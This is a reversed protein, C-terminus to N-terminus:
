ILLVPLVTAISRGLGRPGDCPGFMLRKQVAQTLLPLGAHAESHGSKPSSRFDIEPSQIDAQLWSAVNSDKGAAYIKGLRNALRERFPSRPHGPPLRAILRRARKM